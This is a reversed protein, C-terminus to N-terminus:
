IEIVRKPFEYQGVVLNAGGDVGISQEEVKQAGSVGRCGLTTTPIARRQLASHPDWPSDTRNLLRSAESQGAAKRKPPCERALNERRPYALRWPKNATTCRKAPVVARSPAM